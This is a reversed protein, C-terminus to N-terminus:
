GNWYVVRKSLRGFLYKRELDPNLDGPRVDYGGAAANADPLYLFDPFLNVSHLPVIPPPLM